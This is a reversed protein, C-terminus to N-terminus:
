RLSAAFRTWAAAPISLTGGDRDTSDRVLIVGERGIEVCEGGNSSSYSSTRSRTPTWQAEARRITALSESAPRAEARVTDRLLRVRTVSEETTYVAGELANETYASANDALMLSATALPIKVPPVLQLTM